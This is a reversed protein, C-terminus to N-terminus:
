LDHGDAHSRSAGPGTGAGGAGGARAPRGVVGAAAGRRTGARLGAPRGRGLALTWGPANAAATTAAAKNTTGALADTTGGDVECSSASLTTRSCASTGPPRCGRRRTSRELRRDGRRHQRRDHLDVHGAGLALAGTGPDDQGQSLGALDQRVVAHYLDGSVGDVELHREAVAGVGPRGDDPGVREGVGGHDLGLADAAERRDGDPRGVRELHALGHDGDARREPEVRRDVVPM